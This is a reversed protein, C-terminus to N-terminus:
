GTRAGATAESAASPQLTEFIQQPGFPFLASKVDLAVARFRDATAADIPVRSFLIVAFLDGTALTGGFGVVSRVGYKEVFEAQAPIYRSGSAEAVHFVGYKRGKTDRVVETTPQVVAALDLGFERVLQAIMPAQEVIRVSPLPIARHAKSHLRSNWAPEDGATGLLTLCRMVPTPKEAGLARRAALQVDVPLESFSHTKYCRVLTCARRDADGARAEEYFRTIRRAADEMTTSEAIEQRVERSCRLQASLDFRSLDFPM